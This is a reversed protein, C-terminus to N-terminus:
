NQQRLGTPSTGDKAPMAFRPGLDKPGLRESGWGHRGARLGTRISGLLVSQKRLMLLM